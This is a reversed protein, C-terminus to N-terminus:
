PQLRKLREREEAVGPWSEDDLYLGRPYRESPAGQKTAQVVLTLDRERTRGRSTLADFAKIAARFVREKRTFPYVGFDGSYCANVAFGAQQFLPPMEFSDYLRNHRNTSFGIFEMGDWAASGLLIRMLYRWCAGNPTSLVCRGGPKLIRNIEWLVAMPDLAFHEWVQMMVVADVFNDPLDLRQSEVDRMVFDVRQGQPSAYGEHLTAEGEDKFVGIVHQWGLEFYYGVTPQYCGIDVLCAEGPNPKPTLALYRGLTGPERMWGDLNAALAGELRSHSRFSSALADPTM